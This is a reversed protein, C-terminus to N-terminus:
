WFRFSKKRLNTVQSSKRDATKEFLNDKCFEDDCCFPTFLYCNRKFYFHLQPASGTSDPHRGRKKRRSEPVSGGPVTPFGNELAVSNRLKGPFYGGRPHADNM